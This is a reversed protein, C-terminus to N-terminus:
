AGRLRRLLQTRPSAATGATAGPIPKRRRVNGVPRLAAPYGLRIRWRRATTSSIGAHCALRPDSWGPHRELATLWAPFAPHARMRDGPGYGFRHRWRYVTAESVGCATALRAASLEPRREALEVFRRFAALHRRRPVV